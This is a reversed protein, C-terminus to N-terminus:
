KYNCSTKCAVGNVIRVTCWRACSTCPEEEYCSGAYSGSSFSACFNVPCNGVWSCTPARAFAVPAVALALVALLMASFAIKLISQKEM